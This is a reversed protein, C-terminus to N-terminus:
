GVKEFYVSGSISSSGCTAGVRSRVSVWTQPMTLKFYGFTTQQHLDDTSTKIFESYLQGSMADRLQLETIALGGAAPHGVAATGAFVPRYTGPGLVIVNGGLIIENYPQSCNVQV